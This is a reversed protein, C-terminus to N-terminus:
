TLWSFFVRSEKGSFQDIRLDRAELWFGEPVQDFTKVKVLEVEIVTLTTDQAFGLHMNWALAKKCHQSFPDVFGHVRAKQVWGHMQQVFVSCANRVRAERLVQVLLHDSSSTSAESPRVTIRLGANEKEVSQPCNQASCHMTHITAWVNAWFPAKREGRLQEASRNSAFHGRRWIGGKKVEYGTEREARKTENGREKENMKRKEKM